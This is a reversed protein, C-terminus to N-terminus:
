IRIDIASQSESQPDPQDTNENSNRNQKNKGNGQQSSQSYPDIAKVGPSTETKLAKHLRELFKERTLRNNKVAAAASLQNQIFSKDRIRM